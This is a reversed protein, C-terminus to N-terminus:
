KHLKSMENMALDFDKLLGIAKKAIEIKTNIVQLNSAVRSRQYQWFEIEHELSLIQEKVTESQIIFKM